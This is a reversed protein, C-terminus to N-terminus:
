VKKGYRIMNEKQGKDEDFVGFLRNKGDNVSFSKTSGIGSGPARM